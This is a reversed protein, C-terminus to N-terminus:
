ESDVSVVARELNTTLGELLLVQDQYSKGIGVVVWVKGL